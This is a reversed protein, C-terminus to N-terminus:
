ISDAKIPWHKINEICSQCDARRARSRQPFASGCSDTKGRFLSLHNRSRFHCCCRSFRPFLDRSGTFIVAAVMPGLIGAFLDDSAILGFNATVYKNGFFTRMSASKMSISGGYSLGMIIAGITVGVGPEMVFPLFAIALMGVVMLINIIIFTLKRGIRDGLAGFAPRGLGNCLGFVGVVLAALTAPMGMQIGYPAILSIIMFGAFHNCFDWLYIMWFQRTRLTQTPKYGTAIDSSENESPKYGEPVYGLPPLRFSLSVCTVMLFCVVALVRM